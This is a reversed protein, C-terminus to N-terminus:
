YAFKGRPVPAGSSGAVRLNAIRIRDLDTAVREPRLPVSFVARLSADPALLAVSSTHDMFYADARAGGSKAYQVRFQAAFAAIDAASGGVGRVGQGFASVYQDLRGTTDRQPDITVFLIVPDIPSRRAVLQRRVERLGALTTPCVDPCHTYGFTVLTWRGTLDRKTFARGRHDVLSFKQLEISSPLYFGAIEPLEGAVQREAAPSGSCVLLLWSAGAISTSVLHRM